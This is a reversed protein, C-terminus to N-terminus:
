GCGGGCFLKGCCGDYRDTILIKDPNGGVVMIFYTDYARKWIFDVQVGATLIRVLFLFGGGNRIPTGRVKV